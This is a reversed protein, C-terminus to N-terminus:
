AGYGQRRRYDSLAEQQMLTVYEEFTLECNHLGKIPITKLLKHKQYVVFSKTQAAVELVVYQKAYEQGVYYDRKDVKVVGNASVRRVFKERNVAMLWADPNVTLPLGPLVPLNPFASRPPRNNCALGQHPRHYNYFLKYEDTVEQVRQCTAPKHVRLCEYKYSRHYREVFANLDPRHPPCINPQIGLCHLFRVFAAPFDRGAYSGVFRPDRDFTLSHPLGWKQLIQAFTAIVTSANYDSRAIADVLISTGSDVINFVEIFHQKKGDPEVSQVSADKFDGQWHLLPDPRTLPQGGRAGPRPICGCRVLVKWITTQGPVALGREAREKDVLLYYWITKPGATRHLTDPLRQRYYLIREILFQDLPPPKTHPTTPKGKLLRDLEAQTQTQTAPKTLIAKWRKVWSLSMQCAEAYQQNTWAPKSQLLKHLKTRAVYWEEESKASM